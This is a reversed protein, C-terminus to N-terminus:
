NNLTLRYQEVKEMIFEVFLRVKNPLYKRHPYLMQVERGAPEWEPLLRVLQGSKLLDDVVYNPLNGM